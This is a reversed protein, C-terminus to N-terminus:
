IIGEKRLEEIEGRSLGTLQSLIAENHEGLLPSPEELDGELQDYKIPFGPQMTEGLQPHDVKIFMERSLAQDNRQVQDLDHVPTAPIGAEVLIEVAESVTKEVIWSAIMERTLTEVELLERLWDTHRGGAVSIMLYGDSAEFLGYVAVGAKEAEQNFTTNTLNWYSFSQYVAIMSDMQAVDIREGEGTKERHHLAALIGIAATFGPITDAIAEPAGLPPGAPDVAQKMLWMYGSAAQAIPDFSRRDRWPGTQGFGSISAYILKPNLERVRKWSLGLDDMTGPSFNEILVDTKGVLEQFLARGRPHKLNLTIGKKNRNLFLFYPSVGRVLPPFFRGMEGWPPEVKIVEAGLGALYLTCIAGAHYQTLDLVRIGEL